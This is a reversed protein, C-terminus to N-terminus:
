ESVDETDNKCTRTHHGTVGFTRCCQQLPNRRVRKKGKTRDSRARSRKLALLQQVEGVSVIIGVEILSSDRIASLDVALDSHMPSLTRESRGLLVADPNYPVLGADRFSAVITAKTSVRDVVQSLVSLFFSPEIVLWTNGDLTSRDLADAVAKKHVKQLLPFYGVNFPQLRDSLQYPVCLTIIKRDECLRQFKISNHFEHSDLILIRYANAARPKTHQEFHELWAIATEATTVGDETATIKWTRPVEDEHSEGSSLRSCPLVIFPPAAQGTANFTQLVTFWKGHQFQQNAHKRERRVASGAHLVREDDQDANCRYEDFNYTNRDQVRYRAKVSRFMEFWCQISGQEPSPDHKWQDSFKVPLEARRNVFDKAWRIGYPADKDGGYLANAKDEIGAVWPPFGRADLDLIHQVLDNTEQDTLRARM